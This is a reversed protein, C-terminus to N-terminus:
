EDAFGSNRALHRRRAERSEAREEDGLSAALAAYGDDLARERLAEAGARLLARLVSAESTLQQAPVGHEAAWMGLARHEGTDEDSFASLVQEDADTLSLSM